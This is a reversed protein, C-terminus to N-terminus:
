ALLFQNEEVEVWDDGIQIMEYEPNYLVRTGAPVLVQKDETHWYTIDCVLVAKLCRVYWM